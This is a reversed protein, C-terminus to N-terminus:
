WVSVSLLQLIGKTEILQSQHHHLVPNNWYWNTCCIMFSMDDVKRNGMLCQPLETAGETPSVVFSRPWPHWVWVCLGFLLSRVLTKFCRSDKLSFILHLSKIYLLLTKSRCLISCAFSSVLVITLVGPKFKVLLRKLTMLIYNFICVKLSRGTRVLAGFYFSFM